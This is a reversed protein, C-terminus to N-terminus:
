MLVISYNFMRILRFSVQNKAENKANQHTKIFDNQNLYSDTRDISRQLSDSYHKLCEHYSESAKILATQLADVNQTLMERLGKSIDGDGM